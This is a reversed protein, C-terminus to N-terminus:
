SRLISANPVPSFTEGGGQSTLSPFNQGGDSEEEEKEKTEEEKEEKAFPGMGPAYM